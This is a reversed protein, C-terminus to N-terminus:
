RLLEALSGRASWFLNNSNNKKQQSQHNSLTEDTLPLLIEHFAMGNAEKKLDNQKRTKKNETLDAGHFSAVVHDM